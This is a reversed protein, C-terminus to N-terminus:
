TASFVGGVVAPLRRLHFIRLPAAILLASAPLITFIYQEFSLTFDFNDRCGQVLPGFRGEAALACGVAATANM